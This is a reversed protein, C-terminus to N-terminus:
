EDDRLLSFQGTDTSNIVAIIKNIEYTSSVVDYDYGYKVSVKVQARISDGPRIDIQRNQFQRLWYSDLIKAQINKKEHKFEWM